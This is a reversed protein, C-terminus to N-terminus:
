RAVPLTGICATERIIDSGIFDTASKVSLRKEGFKECATALAILTCTSFRNWVTVSNRLASPQFTMCACTTVRGGGWTQSSGPATESRLASASEFVPGRVISPLASCDEPFDAALATTATGVSGMILPSREIGGRGTAVPERVCSMAATATAATAAMPAAIQNLRPPM